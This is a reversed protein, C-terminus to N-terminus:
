EYDGYDLSDNKKNEIGLVASMENMKYGCDKAVKMGTIIIRKNEQEVKQMELSTSVLNNMAQAKEIEIQAKKADKMIEDDLLREMMECLHEQMDSNKIKMGM